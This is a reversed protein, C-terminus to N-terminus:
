ITEPPAWIYGDDDHPAGDPMRWGDRQRLYATYASLLAEFCHDNRLVEERSLRSSRAFGLDDLGEVISARTQWPDADRKYGRAAATGFLAGVTARPSVEILNDNLSFGRGALRRGLHAARAAIPGTAAGMCDRPLLRRRYVLDIEACRHVYPALRAPAKPPHPVARATLARSASPIAVIRDRDTAAAAEILEAGESRLWVVAPDVCAEQGPCVPLQCRLCAPVTLPANIAAVVAGDLSTALDVLADDCWPAGTRTRTSVDHVLVAGEAAELVAVATTKGRAGGLDVGLFTHYIDPM